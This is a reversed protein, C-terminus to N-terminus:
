KAIRMPEKTPFPVVVPPADLPSTLTDGGTAHTYIATTDLHEHGLQDKIRVINEGRDLLATAHSHRLTHPTVRKTLGAAQAAIRVAKALGRDTAHWRAGDRIVQSPWLWYWPLTAFTNRGLKRMLSPEPSPAIVGAAHDQEWKGRVWAIHEELAPILSRPIQVTRTKGGKDFRFTVIGRDLDLDKLRLTLLANIRSGTGYLLAAQLKATGRMRSLLDVVEHHQLFNPHNRNHNIKPVRLQGPDKDLVNKYFFVLANLAQKVTKPNVPERGSSLHDLFGQLDSWRGAQAGAMYRLLWGRYTKRTTRLHGKQLQAARLALIAERKKM